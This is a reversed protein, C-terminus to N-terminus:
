RRDTNSEPWVFATITGPHVFFFVGDFLTSSCEGNLFDAGGDLNFGILLAAFKDGVWVCAFPKIFGARYFIEFVGQRTHDFVALFLKGLRIKGLAVGLWGEREKERM